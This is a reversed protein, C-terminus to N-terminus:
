RGTSPLGPRALEPAPAKSPKQTPTPTPAQTPTPTPSPSPRPEETILVTQSPHGLEHRAIIPARSPHEITVTAEASYCGPLALRTRALGTAGFGAGSGPLLVDDYRGVTAGGSWDVGECTPGGDTQQPSVPGIIRGSASVALETSDPVAVGPVGDLSLADSAEVGARATGHPSLRTTIMPALVLSTEPLQPWTPAAPPTVFEAPALAEVWHYYGPGPFRLSTSAAEASGDPGYRGSFVAEGVPRTDAASAAALDELSAFPGYLTTTGSFRAGPRGGVVTVLDVAPEGAVAVLDRTRTTVAPTFHPALSAEVTAVVSGPRPAALLRQVTREAPVFVRPASGALGAFTVSVNGVSPESGPRAMTVRIDAVGSTGTTSPASEVTSAGTPAVSLTVGPVAIGARSTVSARLQGSPAALTPRSVWELRATYPGAFRAAARTLRDFETGTSPQAAVVAAWRASERAQQQAGHVTRLRVFHEVAAGTDASPSQGTHTLVWALDATEAESVTATGNGHPLAGDDALGSQKVLPTGAPVEEWDTARRPPASMLDACYATVPGMRYAGYWDRGTRPMAVTHGAGALPGDQPRADAPVPAVLLTLIVTILLAIAPRPRM